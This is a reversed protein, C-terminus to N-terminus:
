AASITLTGASFSATVNIPIIQQVIKRVMGSGTSSTNVAVASNTVTFTDTALGSAAVALIGTFNSASFTPATGGYETSFVVNDALLYGHAKADIVGPSASTVYAPLWNFAGLYDWTVLNGSTLSDYVGFSTATGWSATAQAFTIVSATNTSTSPATGTAAAFSSFVIIDGNGVGAGQAFTSMVVTTGTKSVITTGASILTGGTADYISMGVVLWAPTSAFHLTDNTGPTSGAPTAANTTGNGAVQTRAYSGGTVEVAGTGDDATPATTFLALFLAPPLQVSGTLTNPMAKQGTSWNLSAKAAYDSFGTM